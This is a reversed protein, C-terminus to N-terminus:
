EVEKERLAHEIMNKFAVTSEDILRSRGSMRIALYGKELKIVAGVLGHDPHPARVYTGQIEVYTLDFGGIKNTSSRINLDEPLEHFYAEWATTRKSPNGEEESFKWFYVPAMQAPSPQNPIELLNGKKSLKEDWVWKWGPPRIFTFPAVVFNEPDAHAVFAAFWLALLLVPRPGLLLRKM